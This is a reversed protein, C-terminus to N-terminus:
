RKPVQFLEALQEKSLPVPLFKYQVADAMVADLGSIRYPDLMEKLYFEARLQQTFKPPTNSLAQYFELVKPDASYMWDVAEAYAKVFRAFLGPNQALKGANAVMLRVTQNRAAPVDSARGIIRIRGEELQQLGIPPVAVGIDIQGSLVQTLTATQGGTATPKAKGGTQKLIALAFIHSSAGTTSYAITANEGADQMRKIPSDARVYWYLDNAGTTSSGIARVPAGKAYAGMAASTGIALGLDVSGSIVVQITEGTGQTYVKDLILGNKKFIDVREGLDPAANEWNGRMAIAVKLTDQARVESALLVLLLALPLALLAAFANARNVTEERKYKPM